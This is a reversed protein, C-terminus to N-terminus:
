KASDSSSTSASLKGGSQQLWRWNLRPTAIFVPTTVEIGRRARSPPRIQFLCARLWLTGGPLLPALLRSSSSYRRGPRVAAVQRLHEESPLRVLPTAESRNSNRLKTGIVEESLERLERVCKVQGAGARPRTPGAISRLPNASDAGPIALVGILGGGPTSQRAELWTATDLARLWRAANRKTVFQDYDIEPDRYASGDRLMAFAIWLIKHAVAVISRRAGHRIALGKKLPGFQTQKTRAAAHPIECLIRRLYRNGKRTRGSRRKGASEDNGSCIGTWSPLRRATGFEAMDDGTEALTGAGPLTQLLHWPRAWEKRATELIRGEVEDTTAETALWQEQLLKVLPRASEALDHQLADKLPALKKRAAGMVGALMTQPEEDEILGDILRQGSAGLM